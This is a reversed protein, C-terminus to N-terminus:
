EVPKEEIDGQDDGELQRMAKFLLDGARKHCKSFHQNDSIMKAMNMQEILNAAADIKELATQPNEM